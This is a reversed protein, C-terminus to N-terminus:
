SLETQNHYYIIKNTIKNIKSNNSNVVSNNVSSAITDITNMNKM